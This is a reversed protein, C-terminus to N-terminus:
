KKTPNNTIKSYLQILEKYTKSILRVNSIHNEFIKECETPQRKIQHHNEKNYLLM